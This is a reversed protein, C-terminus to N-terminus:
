DRRPPPPPPHSASPKPSRIPASSPPPSARGLYEAEKAALTEHERDPRDWDRSPASGGGSVEFGRISWSRAKAAEFAAHVTQWAEEAAIKSRYIEKYKVLTRLYVTVEATTPCSPEKQQRNKGTGQYDPSCASKFGAAEAEDVDQTLTFILDDRWRRYEVDILEKERWARATLRGIESILQSTRAGEEIPQNADVAVQMALAQGTYTDGNIVVPPLNALSDIM